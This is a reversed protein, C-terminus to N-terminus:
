KRSTLRYLDSIMCHITIVIRRKGDFDLRKRSIKSRPRLRETDPSVGINDSTCKPRKSARAMAKELSQKAMEKFLNLDTGARELQQVRTKCRGCMHGPMEEKNSIEVDLLAAIRQPWRHLLGTPTFLSTARVRPIISACLRCVVSARSDM